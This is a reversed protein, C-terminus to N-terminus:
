DPWAPRNFVRYDLPYESPYEHNAYEAVVPGSIGGSFYLGYNWFSDAESHGISVDRQDVVQEGNLWVRLSGATPDLVVAYVIDHVVGFPLPARYITSGDLNHEGRTTVVFDGNARRRFALAPSGGVKSGMHLQGYVGGYLQSMGAPDQWPEHVVSFAGWLEVGNPLRTPDGYLSGSIESRRKRSPDNVSRDNDTDWIEFRLRTGKPSIMLSREMYANWSSGANVRYQRGDWDFPSPTFGDILSSQYVEPNDETGGSDNSDNSAPEEEDQTAQKNRGKGGEWVEGNKGIKIARPKMEASALGSAALLAGSVAISMATKSRKM